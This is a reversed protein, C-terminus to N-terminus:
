NYVKFVEIEKIKVHNDDKDSFISKGKNSLDKYRYPFGIYSKEVIFDKYICIDDPFTPGYSSNHYVCKNLDSKPFKIPEIGHINTLTFIFSNPAKLYSGESKWSISAYGGFIYGNENKYLIITPGQNDCKDHFIISTTGDRTGRYILEMKSYGSWEFIKSLFEKEKKSEKLIISDSDFYPTKVKKIESSNGILDKYICYIRIEYNTFRILNSVLCNTKNGEYASEFKENPNDKRIEVKYKIQNNDINVLNLKDITWNVKFNEENIDEIKIEKPTQIGNFFYEEYKINNKEEIFTINLNRMLEKFIMKIKKQNKNIKSIYNLKKIISGINEKDLEIGKIGKNFKEGTKITKDTETLFFELKEKVKTVENKLKEKLDDEEKLLKEIKIKYSNTVEKNIKDYLNDIKTIEKEIINKLNNIKQLIEDYEKTNIESQIDEEKLSSDDSIEILKHGRHLSRFYCISCCLELIYLSYNLYIIRVKRM